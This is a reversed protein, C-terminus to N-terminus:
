ILMQCRLSATEAFLLAPEKAACKRIDKWQYKEKKNKVVLIVLTILRKEKEGDTASAIQCFNWVPILHFLLHKGRNKTAM